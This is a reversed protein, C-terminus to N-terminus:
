GKTDQCKDQQNNSGTRPQDPEDHRAAQDSGRKCTRSLLLYAVTNKNGRGWIRGSGAAGAGPGDGCRCRSGNNDDAPAPLPFPPPLPHSPMPYRHRRSALLSAPEPGTATTAGAGTTQQAVSPYTAAGAHPPAHM